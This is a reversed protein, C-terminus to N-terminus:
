GVEMEEGLATPWHKECHMSARSLRSLLNRCKRFFVQWKNVYSDLFKLDMLFSYFSLLIKIGEAVYFYQTYM